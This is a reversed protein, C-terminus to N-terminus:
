PPSVWGAGFARLSGGRRRPPDNPKSPALRHFFGATRTEDFAIIVPM